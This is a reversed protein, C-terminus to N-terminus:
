LVPLSIWFHISYENNYDLMAVSEGVEVCKVRTRGRCCVRLFTQSRMVILLSVSHEGVKVLNVLIFLVKASIELLHLRDDLVQLSSVCM